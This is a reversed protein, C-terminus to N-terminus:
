HRLFAASAYGVVSSRDGTVDGSNVYSLVAARNAGLGKAAVMVASVPGGGCAEAEQASLIGALGEADFAAIRDLVLNDLRVAETYRHFHSLDTSAVLLTRQREGAADHVAAALAQGLEHATEWDQEGMMIPVLSFDGLVHQLFPLQIELSHEMDQQVRNLRVHSEVAQLFGANVPVVGFPTEYARKDTVAFRGPYMRHVPAIIIVTAFSGASVQAYASAAVQGSYAYGAHPSVLGVLAGELVQPKVNDLFGQIMGRLQKPDGPYWSGAIVSRRVERSAAAM